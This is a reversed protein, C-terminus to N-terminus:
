INQFFQWKASKTWSPVLIVGFNPKEFEIFFTVILKQQFHKLIFISVALKKLGM